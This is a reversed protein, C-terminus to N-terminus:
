KVDEHCDEAVDVIIFDPLMPAVDDAVFERFKRTSYDVVSEPEDDVMPDELLYLNDLQDVIRLEAAQLIITQDDIEMMFRMACESCTLQIQETLWFNFTLCDELELEKNVLTERLEQSDDDCHDPM